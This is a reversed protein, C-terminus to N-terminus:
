AQALIEEDTMALVELYLKAVADLRDPTGRGTEREVLRGALGAVTRGVLLDAVLAHDIELWERIRAVATTALVSDGGAGFFDDHVGIRDTGLV